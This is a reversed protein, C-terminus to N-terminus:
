IGKGPDPTREQQLRPRILLVLDLGARHTAEKGATIDLFRIEGTPFRNELQQIFLGIQDYRGEIELRTTFTEYESFRSHRSRQGPRWSVVKIPQGQGLLTVSRVVWAFPDGDIMAELQQEVFATIQQRMGENIAARKAQRQVDDTQEELKQLKANAERLVDRQRVIYFQYTAGITVLTVIGVLVIKQIREKPQNKLFNV